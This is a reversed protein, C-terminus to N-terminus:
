YEEEFLTIDFMSILSQIISDRQSMLASVKDGEFRRGAKYAKHIKRENFVFTQIMHQLKAMELSSTQAGLMYALVKSNDEPALSKNLMFQPVRPWTRVRGGRTPEEDSDNESDDSESDSHNKSLGSTPSAVFKRRVNTNTNTNKNLATTSKKQVQAIPVPESRQPEIRPLFDPVVQEMKEIDVTRKLPEPQQVKVENDKVKLSSMPLEVTIEEVKTSKTNEM